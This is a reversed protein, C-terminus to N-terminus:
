PRPPAGLRNIRGEGGEPYQRAGIAGGLTDTVHLSLAQQVTAGVGIADELSGLPHGSRLLSRDFAMVVPGGAVVTGDVVLEEGTSLTVSRVRTGGREVTGDPALVLSRRTLDVEMEVGAVQVWAPSVDEAGAVAYELIRKLRARSVEGSVMLLDSGAVDFSDRVTFPGSPVVHDFGIAGSGVLALDPSPHDVADAAAGGRQLVADAVLNGLNSESTRVSARVGDLEVQSVGLATVPQAAVRQRTEDVVGRRVFRQSGVAQSGSDTVLLPDSTPALRVIEGEGDFWAVVRGLYRYRGSTAAVPVFQGSRDPQLLPYTGAVRTEDGAALPVDPDALVDDGGGSLVLDAGDIRAVLDLDAGLSDLHSAVIVIDVGAEDLEDIRRQTATVVDDDVAVRGSTMALPSTVGVIGIPRGWRTVVTSAALRGTETLPGLRDDASADITNSLFTPQNVGRAVGEVFTALTDTGLELDRDGVVYADAPVRSLALADLPRGSEARAAAFEPGARFHDGLGIVVDGGRQEARTHERRVLEVFRDLGGAGDEPAVASQGGAFHLVTVQFLRDDASAPGDTNTAVLAVVLALVLALPAASRVM